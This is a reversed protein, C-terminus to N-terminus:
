VSPSAGGSSRSIYPYSITRIGSNCSGKVRTAMETFIFYRAAFMWADYWCKLYVKQGLVSIEEIMPM